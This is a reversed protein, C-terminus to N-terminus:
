CLRKWGNAKKPWKFDVVQVFTENWNEKFTWAQKCCWCFSRELHGRCWQYWRLSELISWPIAAIDKIFQEKNYHKFSRVGRVEPLAKFTGGKKIAFFRLSWKSWCIVWCAVLLRPSVNRKKEFIKWFSLTEKCFWPPKANFKRLCIRLIPTSDKNDIAQVSHFTTLLNTHPKAATEKTRKAKSLNM